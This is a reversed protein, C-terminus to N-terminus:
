SISFKNFNDRIMAHTHTHYLQNWKISHIKSPLIEFKVAVPGQITM